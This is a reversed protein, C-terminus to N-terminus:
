VRAKIVLWNTQYPTWHHFLKVPKSTKTERYWGYNWGAGMDLYLADCTGIEIISTIFQQLLLERLSQIVAFTGDSLVCAARYINKSSLKIPKGTYVTKGNHVLLMQQFMYTNESHSQNLWSTLSKSSAIFQNSDSVALFGTNAKCRYGKRLQGAIMYDGAINTSKFKDLLEGTFAAEVCLAITPDKIDPMVSDVFKICATEPNAKLILFSVDALVRESVFLISDSEEEESMGTIESQLSEKEAGGSCGLVIIVGLISFIITYVLKIM